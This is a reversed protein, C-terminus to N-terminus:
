FIDRVKTASWVFPRQIESFSMDDIEFYHSLGALDYDVIESCISMECM